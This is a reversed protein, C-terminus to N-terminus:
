VSSKPALPPQAALNGVTHVADKRNDCVDEIMETDALFEFQLRFLRPKTSAQPDDITVQVELHGADRRNFREVDPLRKPTGVPHWAAFTNLAPGGYFQAQRQRYLAEVAPLQPPTKKGPRMFEELNPGM